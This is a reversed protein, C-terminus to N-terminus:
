HEPVSLFLEKKNSIFESHHFWSSKWMNIVDQVLQKAPDLDKVSKLLADVHFNHQLASAAAEGFTVKNKMATIHLVYNSHSTSLTVGFM